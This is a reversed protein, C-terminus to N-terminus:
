SSRAHGSKSARATYAVPEDKLFGTGGFVVIATVTRAQAPKVTATGTLNEDALQSAFAGRMALSFTANQAAVQGHKSRVRLRLRNSGSTARGHADLTFAQQVGGLDFTVTQGAVTFGAPAALSRGRAPRPAPIAEASRRPRESPM